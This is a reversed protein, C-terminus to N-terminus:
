NDGDEEHSVLDDMASAALGDMGDIMHAYVRGTIATDRHGLVQSVAPLPVGKSLWLSAAGHRLDHFRTTEPLGAKRLMRKWPRHLFNQANVPNGHKTPFMWGGGGRNSEAHRKLADPTIEPLKITRRSRPTKPPYARNRWLTRRIRLTGRDFDVDEFRLGLCEGQRLGCTAALVYVCELRDGRAAALLRKVEEPTLVTIERQYPKPAAVEAAVNRPAYGWAVADKLARKLTGVILRVRGSSLGAKLKHSQLQQVDRPSLRTLRKGGITPKLHLRVIGEHNLWTRYSVTDKASGLWADLFAGVTVRGDGPRVGKDREGLAERLAKYAEGKSRRYVYRWSGGADKYKACWRGDKREFVSGEDKARRGM